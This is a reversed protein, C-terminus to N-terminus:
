FSVQIGAIFSKPIPYNGVDIGNSFNAIPQGSSNLREEGIQPLGTQVVDQSGIEPDLGSYDTITILNQASIYVRVKSVKDMLISTPITYGLTINSLRTYSGNEVFRSSAQANTGAGYLLPQPVDDSNNTPTWRDKVAVGSNFLRPMGELDYLNTNYVDRGYIGTIFVNLDFGMYSADLSLAATLKPFPNGINTRDDATIVGDGDTDVIRFDGGSAGYTTAQSGGMYANAEADTDFIGDFEWGYFFFVPEGVELRTINENEFGFGALSENAGLDLVESKATGLNLAASWQFDGEFDNYGIELEVGKVEVSGVNETIQGAHIGDSPPTIRPMLLKDSTNIYYEAALTFQNDFLGLDLGINTMTKEEWQLNPNPKGSPAAGIAAAGAIPYTFVPTLTTSYQYDGIKDNGAIGYSARLKLNSIQDINSMFAEKNIRWGAAFSYFLSSRNNGGFRSSADSRLSAEVLYKQDYNYNIRGLYGFRMYKATLSGNGISLQENILEDVDDSINYRASVNMLTKNVDSKEVLALLKINHKDALTKTYSLSNTLIISQLTARNKRIVAYSQAHTSGINDDDYSPLHQNEDKRIDELGVVSRFNLGDIIELEAFISGIISTTNREFSNLEMIRVPNEADQGDLATNPGQFGGLNDENYVPLYPAAKIAHEILSRGGSSAEPNQMGFSISASEGVTLRGLNFNSNARFNYREYGTHIFVGDQKLYSSSIRFTSNENGGSVSLNYNQIKGSQFIEDQWNTEAWGLRDAYFPTGGTTLSDFVPPTPNVVLTDMAYAIYEETNLVDYRESTWNFGGYAEFEVKVDGAQGSKTTILIVGNSGKSGYVATTSADKLVQVSEIDNANLSGMGESVVGDIVVLPDLNNVTGLGRIRLSPASGPSGNNTVTLGSARGQLAQDVTATPLATLEDSGVSAIAGTVELRKQTGYGVVVIEELAKVDPALQIDIITQSEITVEDSIYGIYSFSLVEGASVEISYKGELDTVTGRTTGKVLVNVGPLADGSSADTVTGSIETASLSFSLLISLLATLKLIQFTKKLKRKCFFVILFLHNKM